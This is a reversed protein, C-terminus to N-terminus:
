AQLLELYVRRRLPAMSLVDVERWGYGRALRHVDRFLRLAEAEIETWFFSAIDFAAEAGAQCTPCSSALIVDSDSDVKELYNAVHPFVNDPVAHSAILTDARWASVICRQAILRAASDVDACASAAALDASNPSRVELALEGVQLKVTARGEDSVTDRRLDAASLDLELREGCVACSLLARLRPGFTAERVALLQRDRLGIPLTSLEELSADPEEESLIILAREIPHRDVGREWIRLLQTATLAKM